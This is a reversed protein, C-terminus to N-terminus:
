CFGRARASRQDLGVEMGEEVGSIVGFEGTGGRERRPIPSGGGGHIPTVLGGRGRALVEGWVVPPLRARRQM